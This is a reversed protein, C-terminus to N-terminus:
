RSGAWPNGGTALDYPPSTRIDEDSDPINHPRLPAVGWQRRVEGKDFGAHEIQRLLLGVHKKTLDTPGHALLTIKVGNAAKFHRHGSAKSQLEVFGNNLLWRAVTRKDLQRAM